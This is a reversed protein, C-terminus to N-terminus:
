VDPRRGALNSIVTELETVVLPKSVVADAGAALLDEMESGVFAATTGIIPATFGRRRLERALAYGDMEPMFIDTLVLDPQEGDMATLAAKGHVVATVNAAQKELLRQTLTRLMPDDEVLLVRCGRLPSDSLETTAEPTEVAGTASVELGMTLVFRAGGGSREEFHLSGGLQTALEHCINLGLGSGSAVTEGRFFPAFIAERQAEPIGKGNDEFVLEFRKRATWDDLLFGRIWIHSGESHLMANKCLNLTIQRLAQANFRFLTDAHEPLELTLEFGAKKLDASLPRTARNIVASLSTVELKATRAREPAVVTRLDDLVALLSHTTEEITAGYPELEGIGQERIMMSLSAIPTRLEHGIVAFMDRQQDRKRRLEEAAEEAHRTAARAQDLSDLLQENLGSIERDHALLSAVRESRFQRERTFGIAFLTTVLWGIGLAVRAGSTAFPSLAALADDELISVLYYTTDGAFTTPTDNNLRAAADVKRTVLISSTLPHATTACTNEVIHRWDVPRLRTFTGTEGRLQRGWRQGADGGALIDGVSDLLLWESGEGPPRENIPDILQFATRTAVLVGLPTNDDQTLPAAFRIVPKPPLSVEGFEKNLDLRSIFRQDLSLGIAGKFYYRDTKDQLAHPPIDILKDDIYDVRVWERGNTGIIRAKSYHRYEELFDRLHQRTLETDPVGGNYDLARLLYRQLLGTDAVSEYYMSEFSSALQDLRQYEASVYADINSRREYFYFATALVVFLLWFVLLGPIHRRLADM